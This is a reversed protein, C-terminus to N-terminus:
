CPWHSFVHFRTGHSDCTGQPDHEGLKCNSYPLGETNHRVQKQELKTEEEGTMQEWSEEQERTALIGERM